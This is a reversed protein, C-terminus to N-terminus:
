ASQAQSPLAPGYKDYPTFECDTGWGLCTNLDLYTKVYDGNFNKCDASMLVARGTKGDLDDIGFNHCTENFRSSAWTTACFGISVIISAKM